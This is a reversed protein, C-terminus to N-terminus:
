RRTMKIIPLLAGCPHIGELGNHKLPSRCRVVSAVAVLRSWSFGSRLPLPVIVLCGVNVFASKIASTSRMVSSLRDSESIMTSVMNSFIIRARCFPSLISIRPKPLKRVRSRRPRTPRLGLVPAFTSTGGFFIGNKLGLLSSLSKTFWGRGPPAGAPDDPGPVWPQASHIIQPRRPAITVDGVRRFVFATNKASGDGSIIIHLGLNNQAAHLIKYDEIPIRVGGAM